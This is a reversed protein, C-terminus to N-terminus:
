NTDCFLLLLSSLLLIVQPSAKKSWLCRIGWGWDWLFSYVSIVVVYFFFVVFFFFLFFISRKAEPDREKPSLLALLGQSYTQLTTCGFCSRTPPRWQWWYIRFPLPCLGTHWAPTHCPCIYPVDWRQPTQLWCQLLKPPFFHSTSEMPVALPKTLLRFVKQHWLIYPLNRQKM